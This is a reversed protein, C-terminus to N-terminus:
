RSASPQVQNESFVFCVPFFETQEKPATPDAEIVPVENPKDIKKPSGWLLFAHEGKKVSMNIENWQRLTKLNKHGQEAYYATLGENISDIEGIEVLMKFPKSLAKLEERKARIAEMQSETPKRRKVIKIKSKTEM